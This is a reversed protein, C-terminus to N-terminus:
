SAMQFDIEVYGFKAVLQQYWRGRRKVFICFKTNVRIM